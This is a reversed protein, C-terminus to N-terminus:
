IQGGAADMYVRTFEISQEIHRTITGRAAGLDGAEYAEVLEEHHRFAGQAARIDARERSARAGTLSTIMMPANVRRHADVLPPSEALQVMRAHFASYRGVYEDMDFSGDDVPRSDEMLWRLEAVRESDVKGVTLEVVGLEIACRARLGARVADLTLPTVVFEGAADRTVLAESTLKTLAHYISGRPVDLRQALDDLVLPEGIPIERSMVMDRLDAFASEDQALELRGFQGRFYALPAGARSSARDVEALFVTHTGGTAEEVIRCELTALADELLPEGWLGDAVPIGKFKDDGKRAFRMAADPQDESLINVAFRGADAVARGTSSSKNMCILLMPPELSLSSIASATTGYRAGEHVTTVVTVGSAFHGIVDRFEEPALTRRAEGTAGSM